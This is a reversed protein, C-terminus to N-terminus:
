EQEYTQLKGWFLTPRFTLVVAPHLLHHQSQNINYEELDLKLLECFNEGESKCLFFKFVWCQSWIIFILILDITCREKTPIPQLLDNFFEAIIHIFNNKSNLHLLCPSIAWCTFTSTVRCVEHASKLGLSTYTPLLSSVRALQGRAEVFTREHMYGCVYM